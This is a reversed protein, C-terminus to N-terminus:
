DSIQIKEAFKYGTPSVLPISSGMFYLKNIKWYAVCVINTAINKVVYFGDETPLESKFIRNM